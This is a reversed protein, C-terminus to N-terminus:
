SIEPSDENDFNSKFEIYWWRIDIALCKFSLSFVNSCNGACLSISLNIIKDMVNKWVQSPLFYLLWRKLHQVYIGPNICRRKLQQLSEPATNNATIVENFSYTMAPINQKSKQHQCFLILQCKYLILNTTKTENWEILKNM